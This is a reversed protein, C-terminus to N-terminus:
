GQYAIGAARCTSATATAASPTRSRQNLARERMLHPQAQASTGRPGRRRATPCPPRQGSERSSCTSTQASNSSTSSNSNFLLVASSGTRCRVSYLHPDSPPDSPPPSGGQNGGLFFSIDPPFHSFFQGTGGPEDLWTHSISHKNGGFM